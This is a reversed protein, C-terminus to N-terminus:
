REDFDKLIVGRRTRRAARIGEELAVDLGADEGVLGEVAAGARDGRHELVFPELAPANEEEIRGAKCNM